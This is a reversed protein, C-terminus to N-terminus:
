GTYALFFLMGLLIDRVAACTLRTNKNHPRVTASCVLFGYLKQSGVRIDSTVVALPRHLYRCLPSPLLRIKM